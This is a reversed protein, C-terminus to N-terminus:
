RSKVKFLYLESNLYRRRQQIKLTHCFISSRHQNKGAMPSLKDEEM